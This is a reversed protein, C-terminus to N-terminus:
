DVHWLNLMFDSDIQTDLLKKFYRISFTKQKSSKEIRKRTIIIEMVNASYEEGNHTHTHTHEKQFSSAERILECPVIAEPKSKRLILCYTNM